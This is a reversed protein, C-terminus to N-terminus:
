PRETVIWAIPGVSTTVAKNLYITFFGGAVNPVSAVVFVGPVYRQLTATIMSKATLGLNVRVSNKPAASTGAVTTAGSRSFQAKGTVRLATGGGSAAADVGAGGAATAEGFVGHFPARAFVGYDNAEAFVGFTGGEAFVGNESGQALVGNYRGNGHLGNDGSGHVGTAGVGDVGVGSARGAVGTQDGTGVVGTGSSAGRVGERNGAGYVGPAGTGLGAIGYNGCVVLGTGGGGWACIGPYGGTHHLQTHRTESNDGGAIVPQGQTAVAGPTGALAVLTVALVIVGGATRWRIRRHIM